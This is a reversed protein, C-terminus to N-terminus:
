FRIFFQLNRKTSTIKGKFYKKLHLNTNNLKLPM